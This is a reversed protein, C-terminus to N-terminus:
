SIHSIINACMEMFTKNSYYQASTVSSITKENQSTSRGEHFESNTVNIVDNVM